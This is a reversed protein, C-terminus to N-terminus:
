KLWPAAEKQAPAAQAIAPPAMSEAHTFYKVDNREGYEPDNRVSVAAKVVKGHLETTDAIKVLGAANVLEAFQRQGIETVKESDHQLTISAWLRRGEYQGDVLVTEISVRHGNSSKLALVDTEEIRVNYQGAPIPGAKPRNNLDIGETTFNLLAM